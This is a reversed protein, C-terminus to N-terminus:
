SSVKTTERHRGVISLPRDTVAPDDRILTASFRSMRSWAVFGHASLCALAAVPPRHLVFFEVLSAIIMVGGLVVASAGSLFPMVLLLAGSVEITGTLYRFWEGIGIERFLLIMDRQGVLKAGGVLFFIAALTVEILELVISRGRQSKESAASRHEGVLVRPTARLFRRVQYLGGIAVAVTLIHLLGIHDFV